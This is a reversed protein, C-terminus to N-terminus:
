YRNIIEEGATYRRTEMQQINIIERQIHESRWGNCIEEREQYIGKEM